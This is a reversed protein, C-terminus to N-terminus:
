NELWCYVTTSVAPSHGNRKLYLDEGGEAADMVKFGFKKTIAKKYNEPPANDKLQFSHLSLYHFRSNDYIKGVKKWEDDDLVVKQPEGWKQSYYEANAELIEKQNVYPKAKKIYRERQSNSDCQGALKLLTKGFERNYKDSYQHAMYLPHYKQQLPVKESQSYFLDAAKEQLSSDYRAALSFYADAGKYKKAEVLQKGQSFCREAIKEKLKAKEPKPKYKIAYSFLRQAKRPQGKKLNIFGAEAFAKGVKYAYDSDINVASSFREKAQYYNNQHIYCIGLQYHAEANAPSKEIVKELTSVAQPFMQAKMFEKAKDVRDADASSNCGFIMLGALVILVITAVRKM